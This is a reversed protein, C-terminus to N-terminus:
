APRRRRVSLWGAVAGVGDAVLDWVDGGREALLGAQVLESGAGYALVLALVRTSAGFRLASTGALALFLGTHVLKDVGPVGM